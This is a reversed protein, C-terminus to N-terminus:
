GGSDKIIQGDVLTLQRQSRAALHPDHTVLLLTVGTKNLNELLSVIEEGSTQDLNGTPEDALLIRPNMVVARAIAVRQMQGGSLQNPRKQSHDELGVQELVRTIRQHREQGTVEALMLPLAVNEYTTLRPLLHFAQFIFGMQERRLEARTEEDLSETALEDLHYHGQDPRDLLGILNLLTSKGSGSPGTIALYEGDNIQLNVQRLAHFPAGGIDYTKDIDTLSIM